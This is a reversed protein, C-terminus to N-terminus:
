GHNDSCGSLLTRCICLLAALGGLQGSADPYGTAGEDMNVAFFEVTDSEFGMGTSKLTGEAPRLM